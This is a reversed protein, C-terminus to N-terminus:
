KDVESKLNRLNTPVNKLKGIDLKAVNSKLRALDVKKAFYSTDIGTPNKLDTKKGYNSLDLELQM